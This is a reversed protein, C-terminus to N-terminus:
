HEVARKLDTIDIFSGALRVAKSAADRVAVGRTLLWRDSADEGQIRYTAEIENTEGALHAHLTSELVDADEPHVRVISACQGSPLKRAGQTLQNWANTYVTRMSALTGDSLELDWVSVNSGRLALELRENAQLLAAELRKLDTIDVDSGVLRVSQSTPDRISVGRTLVWRYVGDPGRIRWTAEIQEARGSLHEHLAHELVNADDPHVAAISSRDGSASAPDHRWQNWANAYVTRMSPLTGDSLELHWVGVNSGALALGLYIADINEAPQGSHRDPQRLAACCTCQEEVLRRRARRLTESLVSITAGVSLYAASAVLEAPHTLCLRYPESACCCAAAGMLTAFLGPWLGGLHAAIIVGPLVTLLPSARGLMPWLPWSLLLSAGTSLLALGFSVMGTCPRGLKAVDRSM